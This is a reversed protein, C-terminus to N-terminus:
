VTQGPVKAYFDAIISEADTDTGSVLEDEYIISNYDGDLQRGYFTGKIKSTTAKVKDDSTEFEEENEKDFKGCYYTQFEYKNNARKNRFMLAVEKGQDAVNSKLVGKDLKSGNIIAKIKAMVHDGEFEVEVSDFQSIEDELESNSYLKESAKNTKIKAKIGRFLEVPKDCKYATKTNETIVAIYVDKIGLSRKTAM